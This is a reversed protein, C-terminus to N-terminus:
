YLELRFYRNFLQQFMELYEYICHHSQLYSYDKMVQAIQCKNSQVYTQKWVSEKLQRDIVNRNGLRYFINRQDTIITMIHKRKRSTVCNQSISQFFSPLSLPHYVFSPYLFFWRHHYRPFKCICINRIDYLGLNSKVEVDRPPAYYFIHSDFSIYYTCCSPHVLFEKYFSNM